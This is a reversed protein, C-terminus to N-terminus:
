NWTINNKIVRAPVGAVLCNDPVDRTVVAGAAVVANNGIRVGKLVIARTGIWVHNGIQIPASLPRMEGVVIQHQDSDRIIVEPAIVVDDGITIQNRCFISCNNNIYGSKMSFKGDVSLTSGSFVRVDGISLEANQSVNLSGLPVRSRKNWPVNFIFRKEIFINAKNSVNCNAPKWIVINRVRKTKFLLAIRRLVPYVM